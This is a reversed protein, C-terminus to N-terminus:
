DDKSMVHAHYSCLHGDGYRYDDLTL